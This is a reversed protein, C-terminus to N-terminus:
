VGENDNGATGVLAANNVRQRVNPRFGAGQALGRVRLQRAAFGFRADM